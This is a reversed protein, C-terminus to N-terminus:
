GKTKAWCEMEVHAGLALGNVGMASRAPYHGPKFYSAYIGNFTPWDHMDALFVTCKFVDDYGLGHEHLTQGILTMMQRTEPEIGGPVVSRSDAAAGIQGSLYLVDGVEVASSFPLADARPFYRVGTEAAGAQGAACVLAFGTM